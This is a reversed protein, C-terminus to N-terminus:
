SWSWRMTNARRYGFTKLWSTLMEVLNRDSDIILLKMPDLGEVIENKESQQCAQWESRCITEVPEEELLSKLRSYWGDQGIYKTM